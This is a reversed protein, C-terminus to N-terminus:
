PRLTWTNVRTPPQFHVVFGTHFLGSARSWLHMVRIEVKWQGPADEVDVQCAVCVEFAKVFFGLHCLM